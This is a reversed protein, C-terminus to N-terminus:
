SPCLRFFPVLTCRTTSVHTVQQREVDRRGVFLVPRLDLLERGRHLLRGALGHLQGVHILAVRALQGLSRRGLVADLELHDLVGLRLLADNEQGSAPPNFAAKAPHAAEPLERLVVLPQRPGEGAKM